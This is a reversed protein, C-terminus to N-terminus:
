AMAWTVPVEGDDTNLGLDNWVTRSADVINNKCPPQYDHEADCGHESDCEDVVKAMATKGNRATIKIMRGCRSGGKYWGTSLAVVRQPLPHYKGDCESPGGGDGGKGFNNLTLTAQTGSPNYPPSNPGNSSCSEANALHPILTILNLISFLLVFALINAKAM